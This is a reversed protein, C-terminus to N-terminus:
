RRVARLSLNRSSVCFAESHVLGAAAAGIAAAGLTLELQFAAQLKNKWGAVVQGDGRMMAEFGLAAVESAPQKKDTGVKRIWCTPANSFSTDTAGPM